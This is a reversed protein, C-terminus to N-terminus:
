TESRRVVAPVLSSTWELVFASCAFGLGCLYIFVSGLLDHLAIPDANDDNLPSDYVRSWSPIQPYQYERVLKQPSEILWRTRCIPDPQLNSFKM